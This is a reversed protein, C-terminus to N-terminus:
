EGTPTTYRGKMECEWRLVPLGHGKSSLLAKDERSGQLPAPQEQTTLFLQNECLARRSLSLGQPTDYVVRVQHQQATPAWVPELGCRALM